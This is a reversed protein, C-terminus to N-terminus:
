VFLPLFIREMRTTKFSSEKWKLLKNRPGAPKLLLTLTEKSLPQQGKQRNLSVYNRM